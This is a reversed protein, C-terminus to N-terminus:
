VVQAELVPEVLSSMIENSLEHAGEAGGVSSFTFLLCCNRERESESQRHRM